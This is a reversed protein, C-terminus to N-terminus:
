DAVIYWGDVLPRGMKWGHVPKGERLLQAIKSDFVRMFGRHGAFGHTVTLFDVALVPGSPYRGSPESTIASERIASVWYGLASENSGLVTPHLGSRIGDAVSEYRSRNWHFRARYLQNGLAVGTPLVTFWVLVPILSRWGFRRWRVALLILHVILAVLVCLVGLLVFGMLPVGVGDLTVVVLVVASLAYTIWARVFKLFRSLM